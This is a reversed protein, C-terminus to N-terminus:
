AGPGYIQQWDGNSQFPERWGCDEILGPERNGNSPGFGPFCKCVGNARDCIGRGSCEENGSTGKRMEQSRVGSSAYGSSPGKLYTFPTRFDNAPSGGDFELVTDAWGDGSAYSGDLARSSEDMVVQLPPLDGHETNFSFTIRTGPSASCASTIGNGALGYSVDVSGITDLAELAARLEAATASPRIPRTEAQRFRLRFYTSPNSTLLRCTLQQVENLRSADWERLTIDEGWACTRQSCDYGTFGEDCLCGYVSEGDWTSARNPNDGYSVPVADGNVTAYPALDRMSMCRGHGSCVEGKYPGSTITGPCTMRECAKGEFMAQCECMGTARNCRGRNSCEALAHAENNASPYDFWAKGRPCQREACDGGGWGEFCTCKYAPNGSCVGHGSCEPYGPCATIPMTVFGCDGRIGARGLSDSSAYGAYCRCAGTNRDCTGRGNCPLEERTGATSTALQSGTPSSYTLSEGDTAVSIANDLAGQLPAGLADNVVLAPVDGAETVFRIAIINGSAPVLPSFERSCFTFGRSFTVDVQGITPLAQLLGKIDLATASPPFPKTYAGRFSLTFTDTNSSGDLDCRLMQVEDAQAVTMPDDGAPCLRDTCDWGGYGEDCACGHIMEADWNSAYSYYPRPQLGRDLRAAYQRMTLCQGHGGCRDPCKM